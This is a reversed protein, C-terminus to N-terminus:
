NGTRLKELEVSQSELYKAFDNKPMPRGFLYGQAFDCGLLQLYQWQEETEVGEAIVELGLGHAMAIISKVLVKNEKDHPIDM